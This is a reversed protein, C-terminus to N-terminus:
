ARRVARPRGTIDRTDRVGLFPMWIPRTQLAITSGRPAILDIPAGEAALWVGTGACGGRGRAQVHTYKSLNISSGVEALTFQEKQGGGFAPGDEEAGEQGLREQMKRLPPAQDKVTERMQHM